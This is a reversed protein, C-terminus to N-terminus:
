YNFNRISCSNMQIKCEFKIADWIDTKPNKGDVGYNFHNSIKMTDPELIKTFGSVKLGKMVNELVPYLVAKFSYELRDINSSQADSLNAIILKLDFDKKDEGKSIFPTQLWALPYSGVNIIKRNSNLFLICDEESGFDFKISHSISASDTINPLTAFLETLRDEVIIM